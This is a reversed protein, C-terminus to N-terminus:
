ACFQIHGVSLRPPPLPLPENVESHSLYFQMNAIRTVRNDYAIHVQLRPILLAYATLIEKWLSVEEKNPVIEKYVYDLSLVSYRVHHVM